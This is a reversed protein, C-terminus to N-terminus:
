RSQTTQWKQHAAELIAAERPHKNSWEAWSGAAERQQYLRSVLGAIRMATIENATLVDRGTVAKVGFQEIARVTQLEAPVPANGMCHGYTRAM